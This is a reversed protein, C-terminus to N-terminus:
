QAVLSRFPSHGLVHGAAPLRRRLRPSREQGIVNGVDSGAVEEDNRRDCESNQVHENHQTMVPSPDNVEVHGVMGVGFSGGLLDDVGERVFFCRPCGPLIRVAFSKDAGYPSLAQILHDHEVLGMQSSNKFRMELIVLVGPHELFVAEVRAGFAPRTQKHEM